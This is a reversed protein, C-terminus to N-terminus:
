ERVIEMRHTATRSPQKQAGSNAITTARRSNPKKRLRTVVVRSPERRQELRYCGIGWLSGAITNVKQYIIRREPEREPLSLVVSHGHAVPKLFERIQATLVGRPRAM